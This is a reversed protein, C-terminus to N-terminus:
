CRAVSILVPWFCGMGRMSEMLVVVPVGTADGLVVKVSRGSAGSVLATGQLVRGAVSLAKSSGSVTRDGSGMCLM